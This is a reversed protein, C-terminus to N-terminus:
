SIPSKASVQSRTKKEIESKIDDKITAKFKDWEQEVKELRELKRQLSTFISKQQFFQREGMNFEDVKKTLQRIEIEAKRLKAKLEKIDDEQADIKKRNQEETIAIKYINM